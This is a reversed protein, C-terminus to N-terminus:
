QITLYRLVKCGPPQEELIHSPARLFIFRITLLHMQIQWNIFSVNKLYFVPVWHSVLNTKLQLIIKVCYFAGTKLICSQCMHLTIHGVNRDLYLVNENCWFIGKQVMGTMGRARGQKRCAVLKTTEVTM